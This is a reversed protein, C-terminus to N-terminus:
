SLAKMTRTITATAKITAMPISGSETVSLMGMMPQNTFPCFFLLIRRGAQRSHPNRTTSKAPAQVRMHSRCVERCRGHPGAPGLGIPRLPMHTTTAAVEWIAGALAAAAAARLLYSSQALLPGASGGRVKMTRSKMQGVVIVATSLSPRSLSCAQITMFLPLITM